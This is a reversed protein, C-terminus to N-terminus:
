AGQDSRRGGGPGPEWGASAESTPCSRRLTRMTPRAQGGGAGIRARSSANTLSRGLLGAGLAGAALGTIGGRFLGALLLAGGTSGALLRIGPPWDRQWPDLSPGVRRRVKGGQLAPHRTTIPHPDLRDVVSRVGRTMATAALLPGLEDAFVPGSLTARGDSVSVEIARPHSVVRGLAARIREAVVSDPAGDPTIMAWSESALGQVRNSLDRAAKHSFTDIEHRRHEIQDRVRARRRRGCDPDLYYMLGAGLGLLTLGRM